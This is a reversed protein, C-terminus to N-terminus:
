THSKKPHPFLSKQHPFLNKWYGQVLSLYPEHRQLDPPAIMAVIKLKAPDFVVLVTGGRGMLPMANSQKTDLGLERMRQELATKQAKSFYLVEDVSKLQTRLESLGQEWPKFYQPMSTVDDGGGTTVAIVIKEAEAPDQPLPAWIWRPLSYWHPMLAAHQDRAVALGHASFDYGQVLQLTSSSFAYYLPRGNWLSFAGYILASLQVAAIIGIDRVLEARPKSQRAVLFTMLPGLTVDVGILVAVVSSVGVVYWGPWRYWGLYLTGLVLALVSASILLHLGFAKLRFRM